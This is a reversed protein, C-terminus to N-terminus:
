KFWLQCWLLNSGFLRSNWINNCVYFLLFGWIYLVKKKKFFMIKADTVQDEISRLKDAIKSVENVRNEVTAFM